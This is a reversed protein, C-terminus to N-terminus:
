NDTQVNDFEASPRGIRDLRDNPWVGMEGDDAVGNVSIMMPTNRFYYTATDTDGGGSMNDAGLGGDLTDNGDEGAMGDNGNGGLLYDSGTHGWITDNGDGGSLYDNGGGGDLTDDGSGGVIRDNGNGGNITAPTSVNVLTITDSGDLGNVVIRNIRGFVPTFTQVGNKTVTFSFGSGTVTINDNGSTGDVTLTQFLEVVPRQTPSIGIPSPTAALLRRGELAEVVSRATRSLSTTRAEGKRPSRATCGSRTNRNFNVNNELALAGGAQGAPPEAECRSAGAGGCM